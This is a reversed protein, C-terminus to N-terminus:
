IAGAAVLTAIAGIVAVLITVTAGILLRRDERREERERKRREQEAAKIEAIDEIVGQLLTETRVCIRKVDEFETREVM